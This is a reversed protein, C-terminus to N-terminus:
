ATFILALCLGSFLLSFIFLYNCLKISCIFVFLLFVKEPFFFSFVSCFTISKLFELQICGLLSNLSISIYYMVMYNKM